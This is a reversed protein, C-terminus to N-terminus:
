QNPDIHAIRDNTGVGDGDFNPSLAVATAQVQTWVQLPTLSPNGQLIRAVIGTVVPASFSTGSTDTFRYNYYAPSTQTSANYAAKINHAPAYIDVCPGTNSGLDTGNCDGFNGCSWLRDYEDTGGVSIVHYSSAFNGANGYAMRAPTTTCNSNGQHNASVVVTMGNGSCQGQDANGCVVDNVTDEFEGLPVNVIQPDPNAADIYMSINCVAPHKPYPNGKQIDGGPDPPSVIWDMGWCWWLLQTGGDFNAVKVPVIYANKAVGVNKGAAVSAVATGHTGSRYDPDLLGGDHPSTAPYTDTSWSPGDKVRPNLQPTNPDNDDDFEIHNREVGGDLIYIYVGSGDTQYTYSGNGITVPGSQDIRDLDWLQPDTITQTASVHGWANEEVVEVRPDSALARATPASMKAGFGHMAHKFIAPTTGHYEFNLHYESALQHSVEDVQSGPLHALRVIYSDPV